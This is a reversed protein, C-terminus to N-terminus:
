HLIVYQYRCYAAVDVQEVKDCAFVYISKVHVLISDPCEIVQALGIRHM